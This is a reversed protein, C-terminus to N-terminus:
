MRFLRDLIESSISKQKSTLAREVVRVCVRTKNFDRRVDALFLFLNSKLLFFYIYICTHICIHLNIYIYFCEECSDEVEGYTNVISVSFGSEKGRPFYRSPEIRIRPHAGHRPLFSRPVTRSSEVGRWPCFRRPLPIRVWRGPVLPPFARPSQGRDLLPEGSTVGGHASTITVKSVVSIDLPILLQRRRRSAERKRERPIHFRARARRRSSSVPLYLSLSLCTM